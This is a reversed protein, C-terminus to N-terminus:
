LPLRSKAILRDTVARVPRLSLFTGIVPLNRMVGRRLFAFFCAYLSPYNPSPRLLVLLTCNHLWRAFVIM